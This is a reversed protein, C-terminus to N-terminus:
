VNKRFGWNVNDSWIETFLGKMFVYKGLNKLKSVSTGEKIKESDSEDANQETEKYYDRMKMM